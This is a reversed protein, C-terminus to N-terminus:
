VQETNPGVKMTLNRNANSTQEMYTLFTGVLAFFNTVDANTLVPRGDSVSGDDVTTATSDFQAAWGQAQLEAQLSKLYNYTKGLRDAGPRIKGLIYNQQPTATAM